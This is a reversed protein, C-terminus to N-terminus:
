LLGAERTVERMFGVNPRDGMLIQYTLEKKKLLFDVGSIILGGRSEVSSLFPTWNERYSLEVGVRPELDRAIESVMLKMGPNRPDKIMGNPTANVMIDIKGKLRKVNDLSITGAGPGLKRAFGDLKANGTNMLLVRYGAAHLSAAASRGTTGSGLILVSSSQDINTKELVEVVAQGETNYGILRDSEDKRILNISGVIESIESLEDVFTIALSKYPIDIIAGNSNANRLMDVCRSFDNYDSEYPIFVSEEMRRRAEGNFMVVTRSTGGIKGFIFNIKTDQSVRYKRLSWKSKQFEKSLGMEKMLLEKRALEDFGKEPNILEMDYQFMSSGLAPTLLNLIPSFLGRVRIILGNDKMFLNVIDTLKLLRDLDDSNDVTVVLEYYSCYSMKEQEPPTWNEDDGVLNTLIIQIGKKEAISWIGQLDEIHVGGPVKIYPFGIKVAEKLIRIANRYLIPDRQRDVKNACEVNIIARSKLFTSLQILMVGIRTFGEPTDLRALSSIDIDFLISKDSRHIYFKKRIREVSRERITIMPSPPSESEMYLAGFLTKLKIDTNSTKAGWGEMREKSRIIQNTVTETNSSRTEEIGSQGPVILINNSSKEQQVLKIGM